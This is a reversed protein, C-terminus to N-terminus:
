HFSTFIIGALGKWKARNLKINQDICRGKFINFGSMNPIVQLQGTEIVTSNNDIDLHSIRFNSVTLM